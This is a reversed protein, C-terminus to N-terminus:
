ARMGKLLSALIKDQERAFVQRNDFLKNNRILEFESAAGAFEHAMNEINGVLLSKIATLYEEWVTVDADYLLKSIKAIAVDHTEKTM